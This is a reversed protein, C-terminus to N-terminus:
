YPQIIDDPIPKSKKILEFNNEENKQHKKLNVSLKAEEYSGQVNVKITVPNEIQSNKPIFIEYKGDPDTTSKFEKGFEMGSYRIKIEVGAIGTVKGQHVVRGIIYTGFPKLKIKLSDGTLADIQYKEVFDLYNDMGKLYVTFEKRKPINELEVIGKSNTGLKQAYEDGAIKINVEQNDIPKNQDDTVEIILTKSGMCGSLLSLIFLLGISKFFRM